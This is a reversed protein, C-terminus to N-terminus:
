AVTFTNGSLSGRSTRVLGSDGAGRGSSGDLVASEGSEREYRGKKEFRAPFPREAGTGGVKKTRWESDM